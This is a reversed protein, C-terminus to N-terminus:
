AAIKNEVLKHDVGISTLYASSREADLRHIYGLRFTQGFEPSGKCTNKHVIVFPAKAKKATRKM